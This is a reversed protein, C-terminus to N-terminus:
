ASLKKARKEKRAKAREAKRQYAEPVSDVYQDVGEKSRAAQGALDNAWENGIIGAHGDVHRAVIEHTLYLPQLAVWLENNTELLRGHKLARLGRIVYMSNTYLYVKCPQTLAQLGMLVGMTEMNNNTARKIYGSLVRHHEGKKLIAAWGGNGPNGPYTSGDTWLEVNPHKNQSSM